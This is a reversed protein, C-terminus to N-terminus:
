QEHRRELEANEARPPSMSSRETEQGASPSNEPDHETLLSVTPFAVAVDISWEEIKPIGVADEREEVGWGAWLRIM